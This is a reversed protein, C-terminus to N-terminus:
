QTCVCKRLQLLSASISPAWGSFAQLPGPHASQLCQGSQCGTSRHAEKEQKREREHGRGKRSTCMHNSDVPQLLISLSPLIALGLELTIKELVKWCSLYWVGCCPKSMGWLSLLCLRWDAPWLPVTQGRGAQYLKGLKRCVQHQFSFHFQYDSLQTQSKTVGCVKAWWTGRGM